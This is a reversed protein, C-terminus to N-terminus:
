IDFDDKDSVRIDYVMQIGQPEFAYDMVKREKKKPVPLPNEIMQENNNPMDKKELDIMEMKEEVFDFDTEVIETETSEDAVVVPSRHFLETIGIAALAAMFIYMLYTGNMNDVTVGCFILAAMGVCMLIYPSFFEEKKRRWFSFMGVSALAPLWLLEIPRQVTLLDLNLKFNGYTTCWANLVRMFGTGSLLADAFLIMAFFLIAVGLIVVYRLFWLYLKGVGRDVWELCLLFLLLIIGSIDVYCLFGIMCAILITYLWMGVQYREEYASHVLYDSCLWFVLGFMCLYLMQPSYSLGADMAVRSFCLFMLVMMACVKGSLKRVGFYIFLNSVIQLIIQLRLGVEPHNGFIRFVGNLLACYYYVSGQVFQAPISGSENVQTLRFYTLDIPVASMCYIRIFYAALLFTVVLFTETIKLKIGVFFGRKIPKTHKLLVGTLFYLLYLVGGFGIVFGIVAFINGKAYLGAAVVAWYSLLAALGLIMIAWIVYSVACKKLCM